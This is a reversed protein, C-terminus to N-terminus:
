LFDLPTPKISNNIKFNGISLKGNNIQDSKNASMKYKKFNVEPNTKKNSKRKKTNEFQEINLFFDKEKIEIDRKKESSKFDTNLNNKFFLDM